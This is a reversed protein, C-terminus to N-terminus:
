SVRVNIFRPPKAAGLRKPVTIGAREFRARRQADSILETYMSAYAPGMKKALRQIGADMFQTARSGRLVVMQPSASQWKPSIRMEHNSPPGPEVRNGSRDVWYSAKPRKLKGAPVPSNPMQLVFGGGGPLATAFAEPAKGSDPLAGFNIQRWLAGSSGIKTLRDMLEFDFPEITFSTSLAAHGPNALAAEILGYGIRAGTRYAGIQRRPNRQKYKAITAARADAALRDHTDKLIRRNIKDMSLAEGLSQMIIGAKAGSALAAQMIAYRAGVRGEETVLRQGGAKLRIAANGLEAETVKPLPGPM